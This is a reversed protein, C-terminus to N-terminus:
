IRQNKNTHHRFYSNKRLLPSATRRAEFGSCIEICALIVDNGSHRLVDSTHKQWEEISFEMAVSDAYSNTAAKILPFLLSSYKAYFPMSYITLALEYSLLLAENDRNEDILDDISHCLGIFGVVFAKAEPSLYKDFIEIDTM